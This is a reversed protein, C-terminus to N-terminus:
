LKLDRRWQALESESPLKVLTHVALHKSPDRAGNLRALKRGYQRHKLYHAALKEYTNLRKTSRVTQRKPKPRAKHIRKLAPDDEALLLTLTAGQRVLTGARNRVVPDNWQLDSVVWRATPVFSTSHPIAQGFVLLRPPKQVAPEAPTQRLGNDPTPIVLGAMEELVDVADQVSTNTKLGDLLIPGSLAPTDIGNWKARARGGPIDVQDWGGYGQTMYWPGDGLGSVLRLSGDESMLQILDPPLIPLASGPGEAPGGIGSNPNRGKGDTFPAGRIRPGHTPTQEHGVGARPGSAM